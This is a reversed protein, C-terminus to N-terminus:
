HKALFINLEGLVQKMQKRLVEEKIKVCEACKIIEETYARRWFNFKEGKKIIKGCQQCVLKTRATQWGDKYKLM